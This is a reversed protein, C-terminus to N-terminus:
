RGAMVPNSAVARADGAPTAGNRTHRVRRDDRDLGVLHDIRGDGAVDFLLRETKQWDARGGRVPFRQWRANLQTLGSPLCALALTRYRQWSGSPSCRLSTRCPEIKTLPRDAVTPFQAALLGSVLPEDVEIEDDHM